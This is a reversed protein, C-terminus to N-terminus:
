FDLDEHGWFSRNENNFDRKNLKFNENQIGEADLGNFLESEDEEKIASWIM